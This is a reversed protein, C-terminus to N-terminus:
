FVVVRGYLERKEILLSFLKERLEMPKQVRLM